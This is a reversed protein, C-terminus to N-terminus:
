ARQFTQTIYAKSFTSDPTLLARYADLFTQETPTTDPRMYNFYFFPVREADSAVNSLYREVNGTLVIDPKILTVIEDHFHRTRFCIIKSFFRTLHKLMVRFFSDGFLVLTKNYAANPSLLVDVLGDNFKNSSIFHFQKWTPKLRIAKQTLPPSFRGGLDGSYTVEDTICAYIDDIVSQDFYGISKLIEGIAVTSGYDNMHTDLPLFATHEASKLANIPYIINTNTNKLSNLYYEGLCYTNKIPFEDTLVSQKDPFIVHRYVINKSDCYTKRFSINKHFNQVSDETPIIEGTIYKLVSHNGEILFLTRNETVLVDEHISYSSTM